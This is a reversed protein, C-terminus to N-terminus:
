NTKISEYDVGELKAYVVYRRSSHGLANKPYCTYMMLVEKNNKISLSKEDNDRIIKIDYVKYTFKGYITEIEVIAKKKVNYLNQFYTNNHGTLIVSGGEGPFFSDINHGIGNKLLDLTNGHYIPYELNVSPIKLTAFVSGYVPHDLLKKTDKDFRVNKNDINNVKVAQSNLANLYEDINKKSTVLIITLFFAAFLFSIIIKNVIEKNKQYFDIIKQKM